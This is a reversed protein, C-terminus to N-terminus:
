SSTKIPRKGDKFAWSCGGDLTAPIVLIHRSSEKDLFAHSFLSLGNGVLNQLVGPRNNGKNQCLQSLPFMKRGANLGDRMLAIVSSLMRVMEVRCGISDRTKSERKLVFTGTSEHASM